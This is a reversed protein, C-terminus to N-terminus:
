SYISIKTPIVYKKEKINGPFYDVFLYGINYAKNQVLM